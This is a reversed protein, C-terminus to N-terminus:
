KDAKKDGKAVAEIEFFVDVDDSLMMGGNDLTKNWIIGFDKRNIKGMASFGARENGWPDKAVGGVELDLVVPKTVCHMTLDGHLKAMDGKVDTVKTSKFSIEACKATDFFDPAKLHADRKGNDTNISAPDISADVKWSQPKGPEYSVTGSFNTFRGPVRGVLHRIRFGVSSHSSDIEYVGARLASSLVSLVAALIMQNRM